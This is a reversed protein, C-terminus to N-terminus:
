EGQILSASVDFSSGDESFIPLVPQQVGYQTISNSGLQVQMILPMLKAHWYYHLFGARQTKSPIRILLMQQQKPFPYYGAVIAVFRVTQNRDIHLTTRQGPMASYRDVKLIGQDSTAENFMKRVQIPNTLLQSLTEAKAAQLVLLTCSNAMGNLPNLFPVSLVELNIAGEAFPTAVNDIAEKESRYLVLQSSCGSQLLLLLFLLPISIARM